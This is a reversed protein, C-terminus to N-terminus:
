FPLYDGVFPELGYMWIYPSAAILVGIIFVHANSEGVGGKGTISAAAKVKVMAVIGVIAQAIITFALSADLNALGLVYPTNMAIFTFIFMAPLAHLAHKLWHMGAEDKAVFYIEILSLVIGMAIAPIIVLDTLVM